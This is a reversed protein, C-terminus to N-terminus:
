VVQFTQETEYGFISLTIEVEGLTKEVKGSIGKVNLPNESNYTLGQKLSSYKCICLEAGTDILLRLKGNIGASTELTVTSLSFDATQTCGM